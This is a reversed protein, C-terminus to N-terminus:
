ADAAAGDRADDNARERRPPAPLRADAATVRGDGDRDVREFLRRGSVQYEAFTMAGDEDTDLADFRVRTQRDAGQGLTAIRRDLRDEYEQLYDEGDIAGDGDADSRAFQEARAREFEERAVAGDGDTDFLELFGTRTHSSPMGLRDRRRPTADDEDADGAPLTEFREFMRAGSADFEGRDVRGDGDGDLSAFRRHAQEVHEGRALELERHLRDDFERVYEEVNVHGDGNADTADFRQRRFREFEDWALTGDGDADHQAIFATVDEGHGGVLPRRDPNEQALACPLVLASLCAGALLSKKM